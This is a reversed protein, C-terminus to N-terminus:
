DIYKWGRIYRPIEIGVEELAEQFRLKNIKDGRLYGYDLSDLFSKHNPFLIWIAWIPNQICLFNGGIESPGGEIDILENNQCDFDQGVKKPAGELSILKNNLCDFDGDVRIPAGKLNALENNGCNFDRSIELPAGKLNILKNNSCWYNGGVEIPGSELGTLENSSCDFSLIVKSPSGELTTLKNHSCDFDEVYSPSGDLTTLENYSCDFIGHVRGFKLPLKRLGMNNLDVDDYIDVSGDPNITYQNISLEDCIFHIEDESHSEFAKLYKM